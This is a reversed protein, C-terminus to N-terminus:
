FIKDKKILIKGREKRLNNLALKVKERFQFSFLNHFLRTRREIGEMNESELWLDFQNTQKLSDSASNYALPM